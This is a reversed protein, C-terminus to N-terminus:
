KTQIETILEKFYIEFKELGKKTAISRVYMQLTIVDLEKRKYPYLEKDTIQHSLMIINFFVKPQLDINLDDLYLGESVGKRMNFTIDQIIKSKVYDMHKQLIDPYYRMLEEHSSNNCNDSHDMAIKKIEVVEKVADYNKSVVDLMKSRMKDQFSHLAAEVLDNKNSYYKYLTKKSVKLETCIDDMTVSKFGSSMFIENAKELITERMM